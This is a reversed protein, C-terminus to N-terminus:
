RVNFPIFSYKEEYFPFFWLLRIKNGEIIKILGFFISTTDSVGEVADLVVYDESKMSPQWEVSNYGM